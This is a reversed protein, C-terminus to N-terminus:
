VGQTKTRSGNRLSVQSSKYGYLIKYKIIKCKSINPESTEIKIEDFATLSILRKKSSM